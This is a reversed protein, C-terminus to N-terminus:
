SAFVFDPWPYSGPKVLISQDCAPVHMQVVGTDLEGIVGFESWNMRRCVASATAGGELLLHDVRVQTLLRTVVDALIGQLRQSTLPNRDLPQPIAILLSPNDAAVECIRCAWTTPDAGAFVDDPMPLVPIARQRAIQILERSYASASGSVFVRRHGSLASVFPRTPKLARSELLAAFFDAGGAPLIERTVRDAWSRVDSLDAAAGVTFADEINSATTLIRIRPDGLLKAPDSCHAPHDPDDAFGTQHLPVGDIRYEGDVIVRRRSPNQAVLLASSFGLISRLAGVEALIQGRMASDTKKYILDFADRSHSEVLSAVIQAAPARALLRSDSDIVTLGEGCEVPRERVLRTPLGYRLGIGAIEAAGSLDDAIVLHQTM